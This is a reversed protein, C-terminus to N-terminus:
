RDPTTAIKLMISHIPPARTAPISYIRQMATEGCHQCLQPDFNMRTKCIQTWDVKPQKTMPALDFQARAKNLLKTKSRGALFGYHRIRVFRKPLIHMAFRRIFETSSLKMSKRKAADKYDKYTFTVTDDEIDTIRHNTIAVKHTYRGLYQIVQKPGAFPQKAFVVWQKEFLKDRLAKPLLIGKEKLKPRIIALYKARFVKSLAEVPFLYKGKARAQKWKGNQTLGGGPIICHLHPHLSLNQGWTHLIATMAPKAGLHKHDAAFTHITQWAAKFLANYMIRPQNLCLPNLLDPITIVVHFYPVPLLEAERDMIWRERQVGQCKPCHRNRCSNYSIRVSACATCADIHAGLEATRCKALAHLTRKQQNTFRSSKWIQDLQAAIVEAVEFAPKM